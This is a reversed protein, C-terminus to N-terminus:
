GRPLPDNLLERLTVKSGTVVTKSEAKLSSREASLDPAALWARYFRSRARRWKELPVDPADLDGADLVFGTGDRVVEDTM